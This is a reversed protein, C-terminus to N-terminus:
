ILKEKERVFEFDKLAVLAMIMMVTAAIRYYISYAVFFSSFLLLLSSFFYGKVRKRSLAIACLEKFKFRKLNNKIKLNIEPYADYDKMLEYVKKDDYIIIDLGEISAAFSYALTNAGNCLILIKKSGLDKGDKIIDVINNPALKSTGFKIFILLKDEGKEIILCNKDVRVAHRKSLMKNFFDINQTSTNLCLQNMIEEKKTKDTQSSKRKLKKGFVVDFIIILSVMIVSTYIISLTLNDNYYKIWIFIILAALARAFVYDFFKSIKNTM